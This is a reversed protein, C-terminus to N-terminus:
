KPANAKFYAVVTEKEEESLGALNVRITAPAPSESMMLEYAKNLDKVTLVPSPYPQAPADFIGPTPSTSHRQSWEELRRDTIVRMKENLNDMM